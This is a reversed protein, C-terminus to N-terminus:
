AESFFLNDVYKSLNALDEVKSKDIVVIGAFWFAKTESFECVCVSSCRRDAVEVVVFYHSTLQTNVKRM